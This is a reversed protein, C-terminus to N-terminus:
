STMSVKCWAGEDGWAFRWNVVDGDRPTVRKRCKILSLVGIQELVQLVKDKRPPICRILAKGRTLRMIRRLEAVFLLTGGSVMKKTSSFDILVPEGKLVVFTRLEKLFSILISRPSRDFICFTEPAILNHPPKPPRSPFLARLAKQKRRTRRKRQGLILKQHRRIFQYRDKTLRQM